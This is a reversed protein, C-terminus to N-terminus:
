GPFVFLSDPVPVNLEIKDFTIEQTPGGRQKIRMKFPWVVGDVERFDSMRTETAVKRGSQADVGEGDIRVIQNSEADLYLTTETSDPTMVKLLHAPLGDTEGEGAYTLTLGKAKYDILEGDIDAQSRMQKTRAADLKRPRTGMMPNIEWATEGDFANVFSMGMAEVSVDMRTAGPRKVLITMPLDMGEIYFQGNMRVSEVARIAELGGRAATNRQALDAEMTLPEKSSAGGSTGCGSQFPLVLLLLFPLLRPNM